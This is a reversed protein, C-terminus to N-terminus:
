RDYSISWGIVYSLELRRVLWLAFCTVTEGSVRISLVLGRGGRVELFYREM